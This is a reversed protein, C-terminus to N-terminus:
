YINISFKIDFFVKNFPEAITRVCEWSDTQWLKVTSDESQTALFRGIPDWSLGKVGGSHGGNSLKLTVCKEPLNLVNWVIITHDLSCSALYRGDPSWDLHMVDVTHGCLKHICRYNELTRKASNQAGLVGLQMMARSSEYVHLIPDDGGCALRRCGQDLEVGSQSPAWRVVNIIEKFFKM